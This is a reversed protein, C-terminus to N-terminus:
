ARRERGSALTMQGRRPRDRTLHPFMQCAPMPDLPRAPAGCFSCRCAPMPRYVKDDVGAYDGAVTRLERRLRSAPGQRLQLRASDYQDIGVLLGIKQLQAQVQQSATGCPLTDFLQPPPLTAVLLGNM